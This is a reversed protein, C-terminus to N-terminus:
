VIIFLGNFLIVKIFIHIASLLSRPEVMTFYGHLAILLMEHGIVSQIQLSNKMFDILFIEILWLM